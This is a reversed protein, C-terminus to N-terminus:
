RAKTRRGSCVATPSGSGPGYDQPDSLIFDDTDTICSAETDVADPYCLTNVVPVLLKVGAPVTCRRTVKGSTSGALFWVDGRQGIGCRNGTKDYVPSDASPISMVWQWWEHQLQRVSPAASAASSWISAIAVLGSALPTVKRISM